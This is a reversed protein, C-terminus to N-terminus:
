PDSDTRYNRAPQFEAQAAFAANNAIILLAIIRVLNTPYKLMVAEVFDSTSNQSLSRSPPLRREPLRQSVAGHLRRKSAARCRAWAAGTCSWCIRRTIKRSRRRARARSGWAARAARGAM